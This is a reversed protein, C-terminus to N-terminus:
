ISLLLRTETEFHEKLMDCYLGETVSRVIYNMKRIYGFEVTYLDDFTLTIKCYNAKNYAKATFRFSVYNDDSSTAFNKGGIMAKIRGTAGGCLQRLTLNPDFNM